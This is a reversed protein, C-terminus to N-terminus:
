RTRGAVLDDSKQQLGAQPRHNNLAGVTNDGIGVIRGFRNENRCEVRRRQRRVVVERERAFLGGQLPAHLYQLFERCAFHVNRETRTGFAFGSREFADLQVSKGAFMGRAVDAHLDVVDIGHVLALHDPRDVHLIQGRDATEERRALDIARLHDGHGTRFHGLRLVAADDVAGRDTRDDAPVDFRLGFPLADAVNRAIHKRADLGREVAM